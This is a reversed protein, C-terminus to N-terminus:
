YRGLVPRGARLTEGMRRLPGDIHECFHTWGECLYNLGPEGDVSTRFRHKPCGGYCAALWRCERCQRPLTASKDRGFQQAEPSDVIEALPTQLLNGWRHTRYVYHDCAYVDGNQELALARGCGSSRVCQTSPQGLWIGLMDEFDRVFIKGVDQRRWEDFVRCLFDGYAQPSVSEPTVTTEEPVSELDETDPAAREVLPIFQFHRVGTKRLFRYVVEPHAANRASVVTLLNTEVRHKQLYALGRLVADFSGEGRRSVRQSDHLRKPGDISVGVLFKNTHLFSGWRDDLLTGNTQFANSIRRGVGYQRQWVVAREFFEVGMLTPEGGQWAFAVDRGPTSEITQKVFSELVVDSMRRQGPYLATKKVYFCYSCDLNCSGGAPKAMVHFPASALPMSTIGM